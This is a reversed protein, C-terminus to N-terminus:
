KYLHRKSKGETTSARGCAAIEVVGDVDVCLSGAKGVIDACSPTPTGSPPTPDCTCGVLTGPESPELWPANLREVPAITPIDIVIPTTMKAM